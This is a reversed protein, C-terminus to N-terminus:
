TLTRNKALESSSISITLTVSFYLLFFSLFLNVTLVKFFHRVWVWQPVPRKKLQSATEAFTPELFFPGTM